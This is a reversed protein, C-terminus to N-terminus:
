TEPAARILPDKVSNKLYFRDGDSINLIWEIKPITTVKSM